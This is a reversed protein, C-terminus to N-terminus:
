LQLTKGCAHCIEESLSKKMKLTVKVHVIEFCHYIHITSYLTKTLLVPNLFGISFDLISLRFVCAVNPV